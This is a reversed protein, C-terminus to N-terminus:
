FRNTDAYYIMEFLDTRGGRTHDPPRSMEVTDEDISTMLRVALSDYTVVYSTTTTYVSLGEGKECCTQVM